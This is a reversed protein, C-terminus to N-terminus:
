TRGKLGSGENSYCNAGNVFRSRRSLLQGRPAMTPRSGAPLVQLKCSMEAFWTKRSRPRSAELAGMMQLALIVAGVDERVGSEEVRVRCGQGGAEM